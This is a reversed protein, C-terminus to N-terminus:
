LPFTHTRAHTLTHARVHVNACLVTFRSFRYFLIEKGSDLSAWVGAGSLRSFGQLASPRPLGLALRASSAADGGGAGPGGRWHLSFM